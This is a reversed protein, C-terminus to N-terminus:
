ATLKDRLNVEAMIPRSRVWLWLTQVVNTMMYAAMGIYLGVTDKMFYGVVFVLIAAAISLGNAEPIGRTKKGYLIAGQYWSQLTALCPILLIM